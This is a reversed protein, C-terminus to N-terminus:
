DCLNPNTDCPNGPRPENQARADSWVQLTCLVSAFMILAVVARFAVTNM